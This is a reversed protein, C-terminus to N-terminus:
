GIALLLIKFYCNRGGIGTQVCFGTLMEM